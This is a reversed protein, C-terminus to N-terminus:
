KEKQRVEYIMRGVFGNRDFHSVYRGLEYFHKNLKGLDVATADAKCIESYTSKYINPIKVSNLPILIVM